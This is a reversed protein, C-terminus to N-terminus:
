RGVSYDLSVTAIWQANLGATTLPRMVNASVVWPGLANWRVGGVALVRTTSQESASLRITQVGILDPNPATVNTLRGGSELYRGVLEGVLTVRPTPAGTMAAQFEVIRSTGGLTYGVSGHVAVRQSEMSAIFRPIFVTDSTGLLNAASGTSFRVDGAVAVGGTEGRVANYKARVVADGIGHASADATAQVFTQGRYTDIRQGELEVRVLPVSASVDLRDTVGALGSLTLTRMDIRLTLTEVDFPETEDVIQSAIAVLTGDRLGRGDIENFSAQRYSLGAAFWLKGASLSRETFFPGFSDSSRVHTGLAPDLRYTFGSAPSAFPQTSLEDLLFKTIADRTAAAAQQDGAFDSTPVSRNTLLFSLVDTMTQAHAATATAGACFVAVIAIRLATM